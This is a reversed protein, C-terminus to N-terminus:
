ESQQPISFLDKWNRWNKLRRKNTIHRNYPRDFIVHEWVGEFEGRIEPRDDILTMGLVQTKDKVLIINKIWSQGLHKDVWEYKEEVCNKYNSLPSTCIKVKFGSNVMENLANIAGEVEPLNSIFGKELYIAHVQDRLENPYDDVIYFTKRKSYPVYPLTPYKRRWRQLFAKEFDAIVGDM